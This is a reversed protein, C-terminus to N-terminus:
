VGPYKSLEKRYGEHISLSWGRKGFFDKKTERSSTPLIKMKYDVILVAGDADLEELNTRVYINLYTKCAHHGMWSILKELQEKLQEFFSFLNECNSCTNPHDINCDGFAHRICHSICTDHLAMGDTTITLSKCYQHHIYHRLNQSKELLHKRTSEDTIHAAILTNIDSFVLYGNENCTSCLGGLNEQYVFHGGKLKTMFSTRRMGNPYQESFREWLARKTIIKKNTFFQEFQDLIESTFRKQHIIPKILVPAGYGNIRGHKRAESITHRGVGLNNQLEDYTFDEAIISLIQHNGDYTRKNNSLAREFCTWFTRTANPMHIPISTLLGIKFLDALTETGVELSWLTINTCGSAHLMSKWARFEREDFNSEAWSIFFQHRNINALTRGFLQTRNYNQILGTKRWVDDPSAGIVRKKLQSDQYIEVICCHKDFSAICDENEIKSVLIGQKKDFVHIISAEYGSIWGKNLSYGIAYLFIKYKGVTCIVPFFEIDNKLIELINENNWGM